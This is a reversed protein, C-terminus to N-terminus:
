RYEQMFANVVQGQKWGQAELSTNEKLIRGLYAIRIRRSCRHDAEARIKRVISRVTEEKGVYLRLDQATESLRVVLLLQGNVDVVAKGKEERRREVQDDEDVDVDEEEATDEADTLTSNAEVAVQPDSTMNVPDSVIQEPLSYYNGFADYVGNALDGTPLTIDAAALITQATALAVVQDGEVSGENVQTQGSDTHWLVELAAKITQWIEQRGTVRTDFFDEREQALTRPTWVRNRSTWEHRRLPKNIHQALSQSQQRHRHHRDNAITPSTARIAGAGHTQAGGLPHPPISIARTSGTATGGPYPSNPGDPRSFCCGM